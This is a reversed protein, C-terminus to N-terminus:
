EQPNHYQKREEKSFFFDPSLTVENSLRRARLHGISYFPQEQSNWEGHDETNGGSCYYEWEQEPRPEGTNWEEINQHNGEINPETGSPNQNLTEEQQDSPRESSQDPKWETQM